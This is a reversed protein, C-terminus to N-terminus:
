GALLVVCEEGIQFLLMIVIAVRASNPDTLWNPTPLATGATTPCRHHYVMEYPRPNDLSQGNQCSIRGVPPAESKSVKM